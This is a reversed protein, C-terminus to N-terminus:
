ETNSRALAIHCSFDIFAYMKSLLFDTERETERDRDRDRQRETETETQRETEAETETERDRDRQRQRETETETERDRRWGGRQRGQKGSSVAVKFKTNIWSM